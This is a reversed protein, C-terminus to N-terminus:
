TRVVFVDFMTNCLLSMCFVLAYMVKIEAARAVPKPETVESVSDPKAGGARERRNQERRAKREWRQGHNMPFLAECHSAPGTDWTPKTHLMRGDMQEEPDHM